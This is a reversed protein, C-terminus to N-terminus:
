ARPHAPVTATVETGSRPSTRVSLEGGVAAVRDSMSQLGTGAGCNAPDFGPGDDAVSLCLSDGAVQLRITVRSGPAHKAANQLAELSTFYVAAEIEAGFRATAVEGTLEFVVPQPTAGAQERLAAVLGQQVLVPPFLGQALGELSRKSSAVHRGVDTLLDHARALDGDTILRAIMGLRMHAAVLQQQAGDHLNRELARREHDASAVIRRRSAEIEAARRTIEPLQQSLELSLRANHMVAGAAHALNELVQRRRRGLTVARSPGYLELRGLTEGGFVVDAVAGPESGPGIRPPWRYVLQAHSTLQLRVACGTVALGEAVIQALSPLVEAGSVARRSLSSLRALVEHPPPRSGYVMKDIMHEVRRRLPDILLAAVAIGVVRVATDPRGPVGALADVTVVAIVFASTAGAVLAGYVLAQNFIREVDWLRFRLLGALLAFPIVVFVARFGWFIAAGPIAIPAGRTLAWTILTVLILALAVGFALVLAWLLVRSQQRRDATTAVAYRHLQAAVGAVPTLLGFFVVFSLTHPYEATSYSLLGAAGAIGLALPARVVWRARHAIEMRGDPFLLLAYLYAVGGVSHLLLVHWWDVRLGYIAAVTDLSAHAQLNFGGAACIMGLALLRATLDRPRLWLLVGASVLNILSFVYDTIALSGPESRGQGALLGRCLIRLWGAAHASHQTLEAWHRAPQFDIVVAVAAGLLLWAICFVTCIALVALLAPGALRRVANAYRNVSRGAIEGRRRLHPYTDPSRRTAGTTRM